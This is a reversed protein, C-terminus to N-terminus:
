EVALAPALAGVPEAPVPEEEEHHVPAPATVTAYKACVVLVAAVMFYSVAVVPTQNIGIMEGHMLGFFTMVGGTASFAAAKFFRRDIICAAVAGLIVGALISGGGLTGLGKYLVGVQGSSISASRRRM